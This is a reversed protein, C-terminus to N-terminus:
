SDAADEDTMSCRSIPYEILMKGNMLLILASQDISGKTLADALM